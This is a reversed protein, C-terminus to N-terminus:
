DCMWCKDVANSRNRLLPSFILDVPLRPDRGFLLFFPSYGTSSHKTCNYAHTVKNLYDAWRSKKNEPLTRLMGLLTQNFREVQGNGQPHYPTTRSHGVGCLAELHEMLDDAM